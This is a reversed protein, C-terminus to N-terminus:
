KRVTLEEGDIVVPANKYFGPAMALRKKLEDMQANINERNTLRVTPLSYSKSVLIKHARRQNFICNRTCSRFLSLM